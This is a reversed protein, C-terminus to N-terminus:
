WEGGEHYSRGRADELYRDLLGGLDEDEKVASEIM